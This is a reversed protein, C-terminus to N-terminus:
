SGDVELCGDVSTHLRRFLSTWTGIGPAFLPTGGSPPSSGPRAVPLAAAAGGGLSPGLVVHAVSLLPLWAM